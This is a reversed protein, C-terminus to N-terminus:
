HFKNRNLGYYKRYENTGKKCRAPHQGFTARLEYCQHYCCWKHTAYDYGARECDEKAHLQRHEADNKCLVLNSIDNNRKNRDKHHVLEDGILKRGLHKEMVVRHELCEKGDVTITKYKTKTHDGDIIALIM